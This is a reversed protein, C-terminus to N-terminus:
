DAPKERRKSRSRVIEIPGGNILFAVDKLAVIPAIGGSVVLYRPRWQPGFKKKFARLGEFNYFAGSHRFLLAGFRNWFRSGRRVELGALPAVGLSFERAGKDRYHELLEIFLFEMMGDAEEPLYRMLDIAARNGGEVEMVSAFALLKGERRVTAIPFHQLYDAKFQGVSFGKEKGRKIDLWADSIVKLEELFAGAHPPHHVTFELGKRLAANHASRMSRFKKGSLSFHPLDIVAEEGIKHVTFGIEVWLALYRETAEYFVPRYGASYAADFFAWALDRASDEPGVPDGYAIWSRGKPAYMIFADEADTFFLSKDGSMALWSEPNGHKELIQRAKELAGHDPTRSHARAPKLAFYIIALTILFSALLAARLARPTNEDVAIRFWLDSSYETAKHAAMLFAGSGLIISFVLAFWSPSLLNHTLKASRYFEARFPWLVTASGLLLLASEYDLGNLISAAAGAVLTVEILWFAGSIRRILGQSVLILVVGLAASLLAGSELLIALMMDNPDIQHPRVSPMLSMLLLYIGLGLSATGSITPAVSTVTRMVPRLQEPVEGLLRTVMGGALRAENLAVFVVALGFPVIYYILRFLLLAAAVQDLPAADSMSAIIVSEFVGVGGPVHSLVGTMMAAAFIAMFPVFGPAGDPLLVYLVMAAAATDIASLLLQGYLIGTSPANIEVGRIRLSKGSVALWTALAVAGIATSAAVARVVGPSVPMINILADPYMVLAASGVVTVGFGFALAIYTSVAAIEFANLGATSYIRYRVAGGSIISIGITNGFSYGLFGGLAVIRLSVKKGLYRLGTWDYGILSLYGVITAGFAALLHSWPTARVNDVVDAVKVTRLMHSLAYVGLGFLVMGVLVPITNQLWRGRGTAPKTTNSM